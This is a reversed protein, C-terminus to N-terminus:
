KYFVKEEIRVDIYEAPTRHDTDLKAKTTQYAGVGQRVDSESSFKIYYTQGTIRVDAENAAGAPLTITAIPIDQAQLQKFLMTLFVIQPAPLIANGPEARTGTEDHIVPINTVENHKIEAVRAMVLGAQSVYFEGNVTILQLAPSAPTLIVTPRHGLLPLEIQVNAIESFQSQIDGGIHRASVTLKTRSLISQGWIVRVDKEYDSADRHITGPSNILIIKPSPQLWCANLLAGVIAFLALYTPLHGLQFSLRVRKKSTQSSEDRRGTNHSGASSGRAYYSFVAPNNGGASRRRDQNTPKKTKRLWGM